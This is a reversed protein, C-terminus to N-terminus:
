VEGSARETPVGYNRKHHEGEREARFRERDSERWAGVGYIEAIFADLRESARRRAAERAKVRRAEAEPSAGPLILPDVYPRYGSM